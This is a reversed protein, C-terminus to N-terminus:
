FMIIMYPPKRFHHYVWCPLCKGVLISWKPTHFPPVLMQPFVWLYIYIYIFMGSIFISVRRRVYWMSYTWRFILHLVLEINWIEHQKKSIINNMVWKKITDCGELSSWQLESGCRQYDLIARGSVLLLRGKFHNTPIRENGKLIAQRWTSKSNTEHLTTHLWHNRFSPPIRKADTTLSCPPCGVISIVATIVGILVTFYGWGFRLGM